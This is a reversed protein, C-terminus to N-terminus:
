QKQAQATKPQFGLNSRIPTQNWAPLQKKTSPRYDNTVTSQLLGYTPYTKVPVAAETRVAGVLAKFSFPEYMALQSLMKRNLEIGTANLGHIFSGYPMDYQRTGANIRQIWTSRHERKKLKRGVYSHQLAKEV